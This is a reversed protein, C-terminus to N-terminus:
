QHPAAQLVFWVGAAAAVGAPPLVVRITDVGSAGAGAGPTYFTRHAFPLMTTPPPAMFGAAHSWPPLWPPGARLAPLTISAQPIGQVAPRLFVGPPQGGEGPLPLPRQVLPGARHDSFFDLQSQSGASAGVAVGSPSSSAPALGLSLWGGAAAGGNGSSAGSSSGSTGAAEQSLVVAGTAPLFPRPTLQEQEAEERHSRSEPRDARGEDEQPPPPPPQKSPVRHQDLPEQAMHVSPPAATVGLVAAAFPTAGHADRPLHLNRAPVM